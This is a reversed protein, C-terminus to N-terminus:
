LKVWDYHGCRAFSNWLALYVIIQTFGDLICSSVGVVWVSVGM